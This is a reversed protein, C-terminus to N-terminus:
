TVVPDSFLKMVVHSKEEEVGVWVWSATVLM